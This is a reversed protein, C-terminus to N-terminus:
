RDLQVQKFRKRLIEPRVRINDSPHDQKGKYIHAEHLVVSPDEYCAGLTLTISFLLLRVTLGM